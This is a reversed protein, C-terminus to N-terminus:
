RQGEALEYLITAVDRAAHPRAFEHLRAALAKRRSTDHLLDIIQAGLRGPMAIEDDSMIIAANAAEYVAANKHQDGLARAPVAIIPKALGALEQLITASARTVVIDAAKFLDVLGENIFEVVTVNHYPAAAEKVSVYNRKGAVIYAHAGVGALKPLAEVMADNISQAGLGGGVAVVLPTSPSMEFRKKLKHQTAESVTTFKDNIPVGTYHTRKADYPYNEVPYGTAIKDARPALLRNTLGPRADSDHILVPVHCFRAALGVPLCVYGGKLFIADPRHQRILRISQIIGVVIKGGDMINHFMVSPHIIYDWPRFHRYRRLKGARIIHVTVPMTAHSMIGKAQTAFAKDTIFRVDSLTTQKALENLVAVVPTM